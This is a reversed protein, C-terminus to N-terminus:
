KGSSVFSDFDGTIAAVRSTVPSSGDEEQATPCSSYYIYQKPGYGFFTEVEQKELNDTVSGLNHYKHEGRTDTTTRDTWTMGGLDQDIIRKVEDLEMDVDSILVFHMATFDGRQEKAMLFGSNGTYDEKFRYSGYEEYIFGFANREYRKRLDAEAIHYTPLSPKIEKIVHNYLTTDIFDKIELNEEKIRTKIDEVDGAFVGAVLIPKHETAGELMIQPFFLVPLKKTPNSIDAGDNYYQSLQSVDVLNSVDVTTNHKFVGDKFLFPIFEGPFESVSWTFISTVNELTVMPATTTAIVTSDKVSVNKTYSGEISGIVELFSKSQSRNVILEGSYYNEPLFVPYDDKSKMTVFYPDYRFVKYYQVGQLIPLPKPSVVLKANKPLPYSLLSPLTNDSGEDSGKPELFGRQSDETNFAIKFGDKYYKFNSRNFVYVEDMIEGVKNYLKGTAIDLLSATSPMRSSWYRNIMELIEREESTNAVWSLNYEKYLPLTDKNLEKLKEVEQMLLTYESRSVGLDMFDVGDNSHQLVEKEKDIKFIEM